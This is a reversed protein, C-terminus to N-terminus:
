IDSSDCITLIREMFIRLSSFGDNYLPTGSDYESVISVSEAVSRGTGPTTGLRSDSSRM